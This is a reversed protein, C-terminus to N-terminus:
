SPAPLAMEEFPQRMGERPVGSMLLLGLLVQAKGASLTGASMLGRRQLDAGDGAFSYTSKLIEGAAVRSTVAVPIERAVKELEDVMRAPVNGGGFGEIILGDYKLDAIAKVLEGGAGLFAKLVGVRVERVGPTISLPRHRAPRAGIQVKGESLWGLPGVTESRFAAISSIHSKHAFRAGHILDDFVVVTGLGRTTEAAAVQFAAILNRAGDAGHTGPRRIAGTVVVPREPDVLLDLGFAVEELTDTGQSVVVGRAGEKMVRQALQAIEVVDAMTEDDSRTQRVTYCEVEERLSSDPIAMLLHEATYEPGRAHTARINEAATGGVAILALPKSV